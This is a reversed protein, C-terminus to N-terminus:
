FIFLSFLKYYKTLSLFVYSKLFYASGIHRLLPLGLPDLDRLEHMSANPLRMIKLTKKKDRSSLDWNLITAVVTSIEVLHLDNMLPDCELHSRRSIWVPHVDLIPVM